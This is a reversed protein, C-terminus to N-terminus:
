HYKMNITIPGDTIVITLSRIDKYIIRHGETKKIKRDTRKDTHRNVSEVGYNQDCLSAFGYKPQMQKIAQHSLFLTKSLFSM